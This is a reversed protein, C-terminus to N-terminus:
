KVDCLLSKEAFELHEIVDEPSLVVPCGDRILDNCLSNYIDASPITLLEKHAQMTLTATISTGSRRKAEGIITGKSFAVILRNRQHFHNAEPPLHGYYESIVLHNKRIIKYLKSNVSPYCYEIGNGLVAITRGKYNLAAQHAVTDIGIALGSVINYKHTIGSVIYNINDKGLQSVERSGVVAVNKNFDKILSIDGYYFLVFPPCYTKLLYRPYEPDFVTIVGSKISKIYNDAVDEDLTEKNVIANYIKMWDGQYHVALAIIMKRSDM